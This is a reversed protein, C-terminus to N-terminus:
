LNNLIGGIDIGGSDEVLKTLFKVKKELDKRKSRYKIRTM